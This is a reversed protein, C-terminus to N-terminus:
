QVPNKLLTLVETVATGVMSSLAEVTSLAGDTDSRSISKDIMFAGSSASYVKLDVAADLPHVAFLVVYNVHRQASYAALSDPTAETVSHINYDTLDRLVESGSQVESGLMLLNVKLRIVENLAKNMLDTGPVYHGSTDIYLAVAALSNDSAAAFARSGLTPQLVLLGLCLVIM